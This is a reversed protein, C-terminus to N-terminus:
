RGRGRRLSSADAEEVLTSSYTAPFDKTICVGQGERLECERCDCLQVRVTVAGTALSDGAASFGLVSANPTLVKTNLDLTVNFTNFFTPDSHINGDQHYEWVRTNGVLDQGIVSIKYRLPKGQTPIGVPHGERQNPDYPDVDNALLNLAWQKGHFTTPAPASPCGPDAPIFNPDCSLFYPAKNVYFALIKHRVALEQPTATGAEQRLVPDAPNSVSVDVGGDGDEARTTIFARGSIQLPWYAGITTLRSVSAPLFVPALGSATFPVTSGFPDERITLQSRFGIPSGNEPRPDVVPASATDAPLAPDLPDVKVRYKSDKDYGGSYFVAWSNLHVTDGEAHAYIRNNWIEFFTPREPRDVPMVTFSDPSMLTGPLGPWSSLNVGSLDIYRLDGTSSERVQTFRPDNVDPGSFWSDPVYNMYVRRSSDAGGGAVDIARLHFVKTGVALPPDGPLGTNYSVSHLSSDGCIYDPEDLKYCYRKVDNGPIGLQAFWRFDLRANAACTDRAPLVASSVDRFYATDPVTTKPQHPAYPVVFGVGRAYGIKFGPAADPLYFVPIPPFHDIATFQFRAPTPDAKGQNDVAYIFFAHERDPHDQTVNFIFTTDTATTFHYDRPKPGPVPPLGGSGPDLLTTETVAWYFGAVVGDQDAGAWYVHFRVPIRSPSKDGPIPRGQPDRLTISDMPAATIWTEPALNKDVVPTLPKRCGTGGIVAFLCLVVGVRLRM